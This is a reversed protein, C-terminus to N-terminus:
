DNKNKNRLIEIILFLILVIISYISNLARAQPIKRSSLLRYISISFTSVPPTSLTITASMEGLSLTFAYVFATLIHYKMQPIRIKFNLVFSNAGDILAAEESFEDLTKWGSSIIGFVIPLSILTYIIPIAVFQSIGIAIYSFALTVPSIAAPILMIYELKFKKRINYFSAIMSILITLLSASISFMLTFIIMSQFSTGIYRKLDISFLLKFNEIGFGGGYKIFGSLLSYILPIFIFITTILLYLYGWIPFKEKLAKGSLFTHREFSLIYSILSILIIQVISLTLASKFDFLIKTYMYIAVEITSYKIGGLILVVSFSTFTYVYTLLFAKLISSLILPIEIKFFILLNNAGDLKASEIISSDIKEWTEGVIRIFLPFNYFVHGIIIASFTYLLRQNFGFLKLFNTIIGNNGFTMLFGISMTVGPLIFPIASLIRFTSKLYKNMKTRAVIYAGPLGIITALISSIFAQYITFKIINFNDSISGINIGGIKIFLFTFPLIVGGMIFTIPILWWNSRKGM